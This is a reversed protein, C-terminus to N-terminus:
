VDVIQYLIIVLAVFNLVALVTLIDEIMTTPLNLKQYVRIM